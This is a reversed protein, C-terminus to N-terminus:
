IPMTKMLIQSIEDFNWHSPGGSWRRGTINNLGGDHLAPANWAEMLWLEDIDKHIVSRRVAIWADSGFRWRQQLWGVQLDRIQVHFIKTAKFEIWGSHGWPSCFESDPLGPFIIGTEITNWQWGGLYSRFIGRLGGDSSM